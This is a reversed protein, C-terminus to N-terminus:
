NDDYKKELFKTKGKLELQQLYYTNGKHKEEFEMLYGLITALSYKDNLNSFDILLGQKILRKARGKRIEKRELKNIKSIKKKVRREKEEFEKKLQEEDLNSNNM